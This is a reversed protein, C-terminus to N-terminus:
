DETTMLRPSEAQRAVKRAAREAERQEKREIEWRRSTQARYARYSGLAKILRCRVSRKNWDCAKWTQAKAETPTVRGESGKFVVRGFWKADSVTLDAFLSFGEVIEIEYDGDAAHLKAYDTKLAM